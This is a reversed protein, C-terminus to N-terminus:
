GEPRILGMWYTLVDRFYDFFGKRRVDEVTKLATEAIVKGDCVYRIRGVEVGAYVPAEVRDSLSVEKHMGKIEEQSLPIEFGEIAQVPVSSVAGRAVPVEGVIEGQKLLTYPKFHTFAYDLISKSDRARSNRSYCNLVVSIIRWNDRTASTVLCRGAQSTYGTKVGDAGPYIDLMENTNNLGGISISASKTAVIDAFTKYRLAYSAMLALEYATSYHGPADLGHPTKFSTDKLGMERAKKNMMEVFGDVSGGIHEAIAVAADNGSELLLGYLLEKLTLVQGAKLYIKSGGIAAARKSVTVKDELNGNEIAVIATMIKTTSAMAKRSFANKEYLVRKSNMDLVIAAGAEVKPPINQRPPNGAQDPVAWNVPENETLEDAFANQFFLCVLVLSILIIKLIKRLRIM